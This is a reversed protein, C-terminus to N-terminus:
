DFIEPYHREVSKFMRVAYAGVLDFSKRAEDAKQDEPLTKYIEVSAQLCATMIATRDIAM